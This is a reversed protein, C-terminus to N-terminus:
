LGMDFLPGAGRQYFFAPNPHWSEPGPSQMFANAALPEGIAGDDILKRCTQLGAGLFTDPACGLGLGGRAASEVLRRGEALGLALPKEGYVSKGADLAAQALEAHVAPVTLNLVVEVDPSQLLKEPELVQAIGHKEALARAREPALDACAVVDVDPAAALKAAYVGSIVGCGLIGVRTRERSV